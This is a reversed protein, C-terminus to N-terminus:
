FPFPKNNQQPSSKYLL